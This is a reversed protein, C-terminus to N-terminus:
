LGSLPLLHFYMFYRSVRNCCDCDLTKDFEKKKKKKYQTLAIITPVLPLLVILILLFCFGLEGM